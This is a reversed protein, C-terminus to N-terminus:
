ASKAADTQPCTTPQANVSVNGRKRPLYKAIKEYQEQHIEMCIM